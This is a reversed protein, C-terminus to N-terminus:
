NCHASAKASYHKMQNKHLFLICVSALHHMGHGRIVLITYSLIIITTPLLKYMEVVLLAAAYM